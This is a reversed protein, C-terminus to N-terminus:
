DSESKTETDLLFTGVKSDSNASPVSIYSARLTNQVCIEFATRVAAYHIKTYKCVTPNQLLVSWRTQIKLKFM